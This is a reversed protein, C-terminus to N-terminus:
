LKWIGYSKGSKWSPAVSQTLSVPVAKDMDLEDEEEEDHLQFAQRDTHSPGAAVLETQGSAEKLHQLYDYDDDFFVGYNRQEEHRKEVEVQFTNFIGTM